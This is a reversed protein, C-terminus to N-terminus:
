DNLNKAENLDNAVVPGQRARVIYGDSSAGNGPSVVLLTVRRLLNKKHVPYM